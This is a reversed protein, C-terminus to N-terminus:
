LGNALYKNAESNNSTVALAHRWLSESDKWYSTQVWALYTLIGIGLSAVVHLVRKATVSRGATETIAWTLALFLGIQPLYTYRDARAQIGVQVLGIVPVLMVLYWLWGVFLYRCENRLTFVVATVAVLFTGAAFFQWLPVGTQPYPYFVALKTPIVMQWVYAAYSMIANWIRSRLTLFQFSSIANRQAVVTAVCSAA